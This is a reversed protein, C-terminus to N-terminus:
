IIAFSTRKEVSARVRMSRPTSIKASATNFHTARVAADTQQMGLGIHALALSFEDDPNSFHKNAPDKSLEILQAFINTMLPTLAAHRTMLDTIYQTLLRFETESGMFMEHKVLSKIAPFLNEAAQVLFNKKSALKKRSVQSLNFLHQAQPISTSLWQDLDGRKEASLKALKEPQLVVTYYAGGKDLKKDFQVYPLLFVGMHGAHGYASARLIDLVQEKNRPDFYSESGLIGQISCPHYEGKFEYFEEMMKLLYLLDRTELAELRPDKILNMWAACAKARFAEDASKKNAYGSAKLAALLRIQLSTFPDAAQEAALTLQQLVNTYEATLATKFAKPMKIISLSEDLPDKTHIFGIRQALCIARLVPNTLTAELQSFEALISDATAAELSDWDWRSEKWRYFRSDKHEGTFFKHLDASKVYEASDEQFRKEARKTKNEKSNWLGSKKTFNEVFADFLEKFAPSQQLAAHQAWEQM